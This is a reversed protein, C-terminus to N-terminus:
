IKLQRFDGKWLLVYNSKWFQYLKYLKIQLELYNLLINEMGELSMKNKIWKTKRGADKQLRKPKKSEEWFNRKKLLKNLLQRKKGLKGQISNGSGESQNCKDRDSESLSKAKLDENQKLLKEFNEIFLEIEDKETSSLSNLNSTQSSSWANSCNCANVMNIHCIQFNFLEISHPHRM